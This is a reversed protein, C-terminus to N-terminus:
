VKQFAIGDKIWLFFLSSLGLSMDVATVEMIVKPAKPARAVTAASAAAESSSM